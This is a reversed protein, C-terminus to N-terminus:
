NKFINKQFKKVKSANKFGPKTEFRSNIDIGFCHESQTSNLFIKLSDTETLGIGGSLFYPKDLCYQELIKWDFTIGNGGPLKGKTDFLFYDIFFEYDKLTNFDFEKDISFAKIVKIGNKKIQYCFSASENGHLQVIDLEYQKVKLLIDDISANVFVGVKKINNPIDLVLDEDVKRTSFQWFIFGLYDPQLECIEKINDPFKM